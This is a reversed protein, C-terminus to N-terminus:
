NSAMNQMFNKVLEMLTTFNENLMNHSSQLDNFRQLLQNFEHKDVLGHDDHFMEESPNGADPTADMPEEDSSTDREFDFALTPDINEAM